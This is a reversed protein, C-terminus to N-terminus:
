PWAQGARAMADRLPPNVSALTQLVERYQEFIEPVLAISQAFRASADTLQGLDLLVCALANLAAGNRPEIVLARRFLKAAQDLKGLRQQHAAEALLPAAASGGGHPAGDPGQKGLARREKRNM